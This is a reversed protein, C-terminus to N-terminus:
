LFRRRASCQGCNRSCTMRLSRSPDLGKLKAQSHGRTAGSPLPTKLIKSPCWCIYGNADKVSREADLLVHCVCQSVVPGLIEHLCGAETEEHNRGKREARNQFMRRRHNM